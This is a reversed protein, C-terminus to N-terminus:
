AKAPRPDMGLRRMERVVQEYARVAQTLAQKLEPSFVPTHRLQEIAWKGAEEPQAGALLEEAESVVHELEGAQHRLTAQVSNRLLDSRRPWLISALTRPVALSVRESHRCLASLRTKGARVFSQGVATMHGHFDEIARRLAAKKLRDSAFKGAMAGAFVGAVTGIAAGVPGALVGLAGGIKAGTWSGVGVGVTDAAVHKLATNVDTWGKLLLGVERISTVALTIWPVHSGLSEFFDAAQMTNQVSEVVQGHSLQPDIIVDANDAFYEAMEVNTIVPIEPYRELHETILDPSLTTKVQVPHGDVLLDYGAENAAAPFEVIHGAAALHAAVEQEGAYGVLRNVFGDLARGSMGDTSHALWEKVAAFSSLDAASAFDAAKLVEVDLLSLAYFAEYATLGGAAAAELPLGRL